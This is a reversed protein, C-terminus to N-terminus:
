EIGERLYRLSSEGPFAERLQQITWFSTLNATVNFGLVRRRAHDVVFWV